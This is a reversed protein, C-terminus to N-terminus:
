SVAGGKRLVGGVRDGLAIALQILRNAAAQSRVHGSHVRQGIHGLRQGLDGSRRATPFTTIV